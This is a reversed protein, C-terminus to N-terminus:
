SNPLLLDQGIEFYQGLMLRYISFYVDDMFLFQALITGAEGSSLTSITDSFMHFQM